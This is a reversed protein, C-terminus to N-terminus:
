GSQTGWTREGTNSQPLVYAARVASVVARSNTDSHAVAPNEPIFPDFVAWAGADAASARQM